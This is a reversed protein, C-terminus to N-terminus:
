ISMLRNSPMELLQGGPGAIVQRPRTSRLVTAGAGIVCAEAVSVGDRIAANVGLFSYAGLSSHGGVIAHSSLFCHDGIDTHHSVHAGTWLIIDAGLRAFPEIVVRPMIFANEGPEQDTWIDARTSVYSILRYGLAKVQECMGARFRNVRGYGVAVFASHDTPPYREVVEDLPVVPLGMLTDDRVHEREVAFAVVEHPSDERLYTHALSATTGAGVIVVRSM